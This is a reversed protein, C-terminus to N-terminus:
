FLHFEVRIAIKWNKRYIEKAYESYFNTVIEFRMKNVLQGDRFSLYTRLSCGIVGKLWRLDM